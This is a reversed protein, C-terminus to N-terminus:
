LEAVYRFWEAIAFEARDGEAKAAIWQPSDPMM